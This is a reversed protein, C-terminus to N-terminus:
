ATTKCFKASNVSNNETCRQVPLCVDVEENQASRCDLDAIVEVALVNSLGSDKWVSVMCLCMAGAILIALIQKIRKGALPKKRLVTKIKELLKAVM